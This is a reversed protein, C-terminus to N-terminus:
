EERLRLLFFREGTSRQQFTTIVPFNPYFDMIKSVLKRLFHRHFLYRNFFIFLRLWWFWPGERSQENEFILLFFKQNSLSFSHLYKPYVPKYYHKMHTVSRPAIWPSTSGSQKKCLCVMSTSAYKWHHSARLCCLGFGILLSMCVLQNWIIKCNLFM